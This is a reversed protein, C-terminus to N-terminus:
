SFYARNNKKVNATQKWNRELVGILKLLDGKKENWVSFIRAIFEAEEKENSGVDLKHAVLELGIFSSMISDIVKRDEANIEKLLMLFIPSAQAPNVMVETLKLYYVIKDILVRRIDRLLNGSNRRIRSIDFASNMDEFVPLSYKKQLKGYSEILEDLKM